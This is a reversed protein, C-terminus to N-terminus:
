VISKKNSQFHDSSSILTKSQVKTFTTLHNNKHWKKFVEIHAVIKSADYDDSTIPKLKLGFGWLWTLSTWIGSVCQKGDEPINGKQEVLFINFM